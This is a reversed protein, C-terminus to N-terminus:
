QDDFQKFLEIVQERSVFRKARKRTRYEQRVDNLVNGDGAHELEHYITDLWTNFTDNGNFWITRGDIEGHFRPDVDEDTLMYFTYEPYLDVLKEIDTM